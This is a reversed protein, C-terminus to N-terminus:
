KMLAGAAAELAPILAELEAEPGSLEYILIRNGNRVALAAKPKESGAVPAWLSLGAKGLDKEEASFAAYDRHVQDQFQKAVLSSGSHFNMKVTTEGCKLETQFSYEILSKFAVIEEPGTVTRGDQEMAAVTGTYYTVRSADVRGTLMQVGFLGFAALLILVYILSGARRAQPSRDERRKKTLKRVTVAVAGILYPIAVLSVFLWNDRLEAVSPAPFFLTRILTYVCFIAILALFAYLFVSGLLANKRANEARRQDEERAQAAAKRSQKGGGTRAPSNKKKNAM